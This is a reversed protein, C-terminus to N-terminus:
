LAAACLSIHQLCMKSDTLNFKKKQQNNKTTTRECMVIIRKKPLTYHARQKRNKNLVYQAYVCAYLPFLNAPARFCHVLFFFSRVIDEYIRWYVKICYKTFYKCRQRRLLTVTYVDFVIYINCIRIFIIYVASNKKQLNRQIQQAM